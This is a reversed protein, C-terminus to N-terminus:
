RDSTISDSQIGTFTPLIRGYKVPNLGFGILELDADPESSEKDQTIRRKKGYRDTAEERLASRRHIGRHEKM